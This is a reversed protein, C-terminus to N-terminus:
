NFRAMGKPTIKGVLIDGEHVETGIKVIGNEDLNKRADEGVNPIDRTIELIM